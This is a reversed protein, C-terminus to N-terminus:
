SDANWIDIHLRWDANQKKWIVVYKGTVTINQRNSNQITLTYRGIEHVFDANNELNVTELRAEKVGTDMATQWFAQIASTGRLMPSGPPLLTADTTYLSAIAASDGRLFAKMFRGNVSGIAQQVDNM